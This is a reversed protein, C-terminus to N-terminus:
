SSSTRAPARSSCLSIRSSRPMWGILIASPKSRAELDGNTDPCLKPYWLTEASLVSFRNLVAIVLRPLLIYKGDGEKEIKRRVGCRCRRLSCSFNARMATSATMVTASRSRFSIDKSRISTSPFTPPESASVVRVLPAGMSLSM